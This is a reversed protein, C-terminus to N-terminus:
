VLALAPAATKAIIEVLARRLEDASIPKKLILDVGPPLGDEFSSGTLMLIPQGFGCARLALALQAGNMGAMAHDTLVLDFSEERVKELADDGSKAITVRHGDTQLYKTVVDRAVPEDDIVLVNL